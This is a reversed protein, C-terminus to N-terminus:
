DAGVEEVSGAAEAAVERGEDGDEDKSSSGPASSRETGASPALFSGQWRLALGGGGLAAGEM